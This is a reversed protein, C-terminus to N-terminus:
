IREGLLSGNQWADLWYLGVLTKSDCVEGRLSRTRVEALPLCLTEVFEGEDPTSESLTLGRALYYHICEDSYGICPYATGLFLWEDAQYGTEERLERRATLHPAEGADIKGAPIEVFTRGVPYRYQRVMVLYGADDLALVAVAGPHRIYERNAEKGDPLRVTDKKVQLFGGAYATESQLTHETLEM